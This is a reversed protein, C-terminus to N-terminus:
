QHKLSKAMKKRYLTLLIQNLEEGSNAWVPQNKEGMIFPHEYNM